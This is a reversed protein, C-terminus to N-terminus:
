DKKEVFKNVVVLRWLRCDSGLEKGSDLAAAFKDEYSRNKERAEKGTMFQTKGFPVDGRKLQFEHLGNLYEVMKKQKKRYKFFGEKERLRNSDARADSNGILKNGYVEENVSRWGEIRSDKGM